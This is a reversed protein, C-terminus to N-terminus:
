WLEFVTAGLRHQSMVLEAAQPSTGVRWETWVHKM